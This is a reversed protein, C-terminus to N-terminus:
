RWYLVEPAKPPTTPTQGRPSGVIIPAFATFEPPVDLAAKWAPENLATVAFGAVCAGLGLACAALMLNEAALWCDAVVFPGMPKGYIVILTGADYFVNFDPQLHGGWVPQATQRVLEKSRDSLQRLLARDQVIAFSWPEEDMASPAHVAADLLDRVTDPHVPQPAYARVARLAAITDLTHTPAISKRM